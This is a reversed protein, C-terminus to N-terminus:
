IIKRHDFLGLLVDAGSVYKLYHRTLAEPAFEPQRRERQITRQPPQVGRGKKIKEIKRAEGDDTRARLNQDAQALALDGNTGDGAGPWPALRRFLVLTQGVFEHGVLLLARLMQHQEIEPAVIDAPHHFGSRHRDGILEEDLAIRVDHM